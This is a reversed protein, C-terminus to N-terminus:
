FTFCSTGGLHQRWSGDVSKNTSHESRSRPQSVGAPFYRGGITSGSEPSVRWLPLGIPAHMRQAEKIVANLYSMHKSEGFTIPDSLKGDRDFQDIEDLLKKLTAPYKHLYYIVSSLSVKTTDAGAVISTYAGILVDNQTFYNADQKHLTLLRSLMDPADANQGPNRKKHDDIQMQAFTYTYDVQKTLFLMASIMKWFIPHLSPYIGVQSTYSLREALANVIGGIDKGEDLHGFRKSFQEHILLLVFISCSPVTGSDGWQCRIRLM